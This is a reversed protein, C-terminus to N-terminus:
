ARVGRVLRAIQGAHYAHHQALGALMDAVSVGSGLARVPADGVMRAVAADPLRRAGDVLLRNAAYLADCAERWAASTTSTVSPWDGDRPAEPQSGDLRRHVERTWATMHLVVEWVSHGGDAPAASAEEATVGALIARASPGHWPDGDIAAAVWRAIADATLAGRDAGRDAARVGTVIKATTIIQGAHRASHEAAHVLLGRVTSPLRGRGIERPRDLDAVPTARVQAIAAAIAEHARAVLSAASEPPVGPDGEGKLASLQEPSLPLGGAYTLLRELSGVLHRLHFGVSAAGGPSQWLVEAPLTGCSAAVDEDVQMLAHVVPQLELPVDRLAGRLWVEPM